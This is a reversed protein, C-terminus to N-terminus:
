PLTLVTFSMQDAYPSENFLFLSDGHTFARTKERPSLRYESLIRGKEAFLTLYVPREESDPRHADVQFRYHWDREPWTEIGMYYVADSKHEIYKGRDLGATVPLSQATSAIRACPVRYSDFRHDLINFVYVSDSFPFNYYLLPAKYTFFVEYMLGFNNELYSWPPLFLPLQEVRRADIDVRAVLSRDFYEHIPLHVISFFLGNESDQELSWHNGLFLRVNSPLGREVEHIPMVKELEDTRLDLRFIAGDGVLLLHADIKTLGDVKIISLPGERSLPVSREFRRASVNFIDITNALYNYGYLFNDGDKPATHYVYYNDLQPAAIPIVVTEKKFASRINEERRACSCLLFLSLLYISNKM